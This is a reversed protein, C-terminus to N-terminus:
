RWLSARRAELRAADKGQITRAVAALDRAMGIRDRRNVTDSTTRLNEPIAEFGALAGCLGAAHAAISECDEGYFVSAELARLFDGQSWKLLALSVIPNEIAITRSPQGYASVRADQLDAEAPESQETSLVGSYPIYTRRVRAIVGDRSQRPSVEALVVELAQKTADKALDLCAELVREVTADRALAAAFSAAAM